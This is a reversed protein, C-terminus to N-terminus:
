PCSAACSETSGGAGWVALWVALDNAGVSGSGDFDSRDHAEGSGFDMFWTSMDGAGMAGSDDLDFIAVRPHCLLTGNAYIGTQVDQLVAGAGVSKGLITFRVEGAVNTFKRVTKAECNVFTNANLQDPCLIVNPNGYFDVVVSAGNKANNALDRVIVLFEGTAADPVGASSGVLRISKPWTSREASPVAARVHGPRMALALLLAIGLRRSGTM